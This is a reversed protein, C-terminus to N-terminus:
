PQAAAQLQALKEPCCEAYYLYLSALQSIPTCAGGTLIYGTYCSACAGTPTSSKCLPNALNCAGNSLLYGSFCSTCAGTQDYSACMDDVPICVNNSNFVWNKSCALCVQNNWDWTACGLDSPKANNFTSFECVGNM